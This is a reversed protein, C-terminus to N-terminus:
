VVVQFVATQPKLKDVSKANYAELEKVIDYGDINDTNQLDIKM